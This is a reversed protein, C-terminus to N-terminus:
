EGREAPTNLCNIGNRCPEPKPPLGDLWGPILLTSNQQMRMFHVLDCMSIQIHVGDRLFRECMKNHETHYM